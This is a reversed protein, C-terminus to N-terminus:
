RARSLYFAVAAAAIGFLLAFGIAGLWGLEDGSMDFMAPTYRTNGAATIRGCRVIGV